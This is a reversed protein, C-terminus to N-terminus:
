AQLEIILFWLRKIPEMIVANILGPIGTHFFTSDGLFAVIKRDQEVIQLGSGITISAGMCLCTDVANLPAM